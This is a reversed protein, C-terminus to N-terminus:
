REFAFLSSLVGSVTLAKGVSLRDADPMLLGIMDSQNARIGHHHVLHVQM